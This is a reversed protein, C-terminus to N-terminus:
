RLGPGILTVTTSTVIIGAIILTQISGHTRLFYLSPRHYKHELVFFFIRCITRHTHNSPLVFWNRGLSTPERTPAQQNLDYYFTKPVGKWRDSSKFYLVDNKRWFFIALLFWTVRIVRCARLLVDFFVNYRDSM